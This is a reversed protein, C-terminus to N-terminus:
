EEVLWTRILQAVDEPHEEAALRAHEHMEARAKDEVSIEVDAGEEEASRLAAERLAQHQRALEEERLRRRRELERSVIRLLVLIFVTCVVGIITYLLIRQFRLRDRYEKDELNFQATRDFALHQVTVSDGRAKNYGVAHEILTRAKGLEEDAVATYVRVISGDPNLEPSGTASYEWKWVGDIAVGVTIRNIKWPSKTEVIRRENIEFNTTKSNNSYDGVLGDLDQYAPPTQGEQGPPGEPNFGTGTFQEDIIQESRVVNPIVSTEDYPTLPNDTTMAIPFYEDTEVTKQGLDLDIEVKLIRVRDSGFISRLEGLIESKYERELAEKQSIQQKTLALRDFDELSDFDNLVNGRHDTIVINGDQLGQIAFNVLKVIGEIKSRSTLLDSGPKPTVIVSATVPDQDEQFLETEPLVLTVRARDVDDLAEIHQELNTTIAQRLNVEREFDTVSWRDMKFLDWPNVERPLLDERVLLGITRKAIGANNVLVRNDDTVVHSIGEEDLRLTIRSLLETDQIGSTLLPVMNPSASVNVLLILGFISVGVISVFIIKQVSSWGNWLGAIREILKRLWENM